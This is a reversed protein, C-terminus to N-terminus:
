PENASTIQFVYSPCTLCATRRNRIRHIIELSFHRFHRDLGSSHVFMDHFMDPTGQARRLDPSINVCITFCKQDFM